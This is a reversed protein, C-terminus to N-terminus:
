HTKIAEEVADRMRKVVAADAFRSSIMNRYEVGPVKQVSPSITSMDVDTRYSATRLIDVMAQQGEKSYFWNVYVRAANPHPLPDLNPLFAMGDASTVYALPVGNAKVFFVNRLTGGVKRLEEVEQAKAYLGILMRGSDIWEANQREDASFVIRGNKFFRKVYEPGLEDSYYLFLTTSFGAGSEAPDRMVIKGDYKPDLLDDWNQIEDKGIADNVTLVPNAQVDGVLIFAKEPDVWLPEGGAWNEPALIDPLLFPKTPRLAGVPKLSSAASMSGGVLVDVKAAGAKFEQLFRMDRTNSTAPQFLDVKIGPYAKEFAHKMFERRTDGAQGWVIVEGEKEAAALVDAWSQSGAVASGGEGAPTTQAESAQVGGILLGIGLSFTALVKALGDRKMTTVERGGKRDCFAPGAGRELIDCAVKEFAIAAIM